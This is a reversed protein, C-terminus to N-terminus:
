AKIGRVSNDGGSEYRVRTLYDDTEKNEADYHFLGEYCRNNAWYSENLVLKPYLDELFKIDGDRKYIIEVAWPFVPPKSFTDVIRGDEFIVDPLLGDDRQFKFFGYVGEKAIETDLRSIGVSHFASDWNWIGKFKGM